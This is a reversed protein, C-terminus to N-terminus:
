VAREYVIKRSFPNYVVDVAELVKRPYQFSLAVFAKETEVALFRDWLGLLNRDTVNYENTLGKKIMLVVGANSFMYGVGVRRVDDQYLNNRVHVRRVIVNDTDLLRETNM